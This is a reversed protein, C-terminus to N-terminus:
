CFVEPIAQILRLIEESKTSVQYKKLPTEVLPLFRLLLIQSPFLHAIQVNELCSRAQNTDGFSFSSVSRFLSPVVSQQQLLEFHKYFTRTVSPSGTLLVLPVALNKEEKVLQVEEDEM